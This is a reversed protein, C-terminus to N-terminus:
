SEGFQLEGYMPLYNSASYAIKFNIIVPPMAISVHNYHSVHLVYQGAPTKVHKSDKFIIGSLGIHQYFLGTRSM